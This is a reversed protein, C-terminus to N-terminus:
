VVPVPEAWNHLIGHVSVPATDGAGGATMTIAVLLYRKTRQVHFVLEGAEDLSASAGGPATTPDSGDAADSEQVVVAVATLDDGFVGVEARILAGDFHSDATEYTDIVASVPESDEDAVVPAVFSVLRINNKLTEM